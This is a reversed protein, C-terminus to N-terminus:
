RRSEPIVAGTPIVPQVSLSAGPGNVGHGCTGCRGYSCSPVQV